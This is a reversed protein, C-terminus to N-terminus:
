HPITVQFPGTVDNGVLTMKGWHARVRELDELKAIEMGFRLVEIDRRVEIGLM